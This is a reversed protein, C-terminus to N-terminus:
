TLDDATPGLGGTAIVLEARGLATRLASAILALEDAVTVRAAVSVGADLLQETLWLTNTEARLPGLLESGIALLEANM